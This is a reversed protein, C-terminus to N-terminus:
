IAQCKGARPSSVFATDSFGTLPSTGTGPFRQERGRSSGWPLLYRQKAPGPRGHSLAAAIRNAYRIAEDTLLKVKVPPIKSHCMGEEPSHGMRDM